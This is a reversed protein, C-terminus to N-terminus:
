SLVQWDEAFLDGTSPVWGPQWRKQANYIVFYPQCDLPQDEGIWKATRDNVKRTEDATNYPPLYLAPMMVVFQGAGNWGARQLRRGNKLEKLAVEFPLSTTPATELRSTNSNQMNNNSHVVFITPNTSVFLFGTCVCRIENVQDHTTLARISSSSTEINCETVKTRNTGAPGAMTSCYRNPSHIRHVVM